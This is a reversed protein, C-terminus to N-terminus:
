GFSHPVRENIIGQSVSTMELVHHGDLFGDGFAKDIGQPALPKCPLELETPTDHAMQGLVVQGVM